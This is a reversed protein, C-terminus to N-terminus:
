EPIAHLIRVGVSVSLCVTLKGKMLQNYSPALELRIKFRLNTSEFVAVYM